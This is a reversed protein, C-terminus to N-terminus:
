FEDSYDDELDYSGGFDKGSGDESEDWDAVAEKKVKFDVRKDYKFNPDDKGVFKKQYDIDMAAKHRDLQDDDLKNLDLKEYNFEKPNVPIIEKAGPSAIDGWDNGWGEESRSISM